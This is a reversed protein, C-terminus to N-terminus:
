TALDVTRCAVSGLQKPVIILYACTMHGLGRHPLGYSDGLAHCLGCMYAKYARRKQPHIIKAALRHQKTLM